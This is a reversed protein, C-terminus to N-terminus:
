NLPTGALSAVKWSGGENSMPVALITDGMGQYIVFAREGEIRLSGVDAQAAEKRLAPLAARNTLRALIGACSTDVDQAAGAKEAQAAFKELSERVEAALYFCAADWQENARADLFNHLATAAANRESDDAEEGFEQVSNDGGKVRLRDSGGGSDDHQKPVFNGAGGDGAGAQGGDAANAASDGKGGDKAKSKSGNGSAAGRQDGGEGSETRSATETTGSDSDDDGGCGALGIALVAAAIAIWLKSGAHVVLM